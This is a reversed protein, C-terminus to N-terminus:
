IQGTFLNLQFNDGHSLMEQKDGSQTDHLVIAKMTMSIVLLLLKCVLM